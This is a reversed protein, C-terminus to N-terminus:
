MGFLSELLSKEKPEGDGEGADPLQADQEEQVVRRLARYVSAELIEAEKKQSESLEIVRGENNTLNAGLEPRELLKKALLEHVTVGRRKAEAELKAKVSAPLQLELKGAREETTREM